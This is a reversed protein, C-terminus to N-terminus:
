YKTLNSLLHELFDNIKIEDQWEIHPIFLCSPEFVTNM